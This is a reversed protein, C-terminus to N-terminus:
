SAGQVLPPPPTIHELVSKRPRGARAYGKSKAPKKQAATSLRAPARKGIKTSATATSKDKAEQTASAETCVLLSLNETLKVVTDQNPLAPTVLMVREFSERGQLWKAQKMRESIARHCPSDEVVRVLLQPLAVSGGLGHAWGLAVEMGRFGKLAHKPYVLLRLEDSHRQGLPFRGLPRIRADKLGRAKRLMKAVPRLWTSASHFGHAALQTRRGTGFLAVVLVYDLAALYGYYPGKRWAWVVLVGWLMTTVLFMAKGLKSGIDFWGRPWSEKREFADTDSLVLWKGPGRPTITRIPTRYATLMVVVFVGLTGPLPHDLLVQAGVSAALLPGAFATRLAVGIPVLARPKQGRVACSRVVQRHKLALVISYLVALAAGIGLYLAREPAHIQVLAAQTPVQLRPDQVQGLVSPDVQIRWHVLEGAAVYARVMSLEDFQPLRELSSMFAGTPVTVTENNPGQVELQGAARPETQSVAVAFTTKVGDMGNEWRPGIWNVTLLSGERQVAGQRLLDVDYSVSLEYLGRRIGQGDNFELRLPGDPRQVASVPIPIQGGMTDGTLVLTTDTGITVDKDSIAIDVQRLPGGRVRLKAKHHVKATGSGLIEVRAEHSLFTHEM